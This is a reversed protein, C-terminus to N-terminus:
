RTASGWSCASWIAHLEDYSLVRARKPTGHPTLAATPNRDIYGRKIAWNFFIRAAVLVHDQTSRSKVLKLRRAFDQPTVISVSGSFALRGLFWEYQDATSPRRARRKDEIFLKVADSYTIAHPRIKGLTKEALLHKAIKRADALSIIPYRGIAQRGNHMKVI